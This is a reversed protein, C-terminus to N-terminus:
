FLRNSGCHDAVAGAEIKRSWGRTRRDLRDPALGTFSQTVKDKVNLAITKFLNDLEDPTMDYVIKGKATMAEMVDNHISEVTM